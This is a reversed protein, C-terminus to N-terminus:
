VAKGDSGSPPNKAKTRVAPIYAARRLTEQRSIGLRRAIADIKTAEAQALSTQRQTGDRDTWTIHITKQRATKVLDRLFGHDDEPLDM